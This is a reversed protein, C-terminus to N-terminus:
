RWLLELEVYVYMSSPAELISLSQGFHVPRSQTTINLCTLIKKPINAYFYDWGRKPLIASVKGNDVLSNIQIELYSEVTLRAFETELILARFDESSLKLYDNNKRTLLAKRLLDKVKNQLKIKSEFKEELLLKITASINKNEEISTLLVNLPNKKTAM